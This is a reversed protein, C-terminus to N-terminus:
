CYVRVEGAGKGGGGRRLQRVYAKVPGGAGRKLRFFDKTRVQDSPQVSLEGGRRKKEGGEILAEWPQDPNAMRESPWPRGRFVVGIPTTQKLKEGSITGELGEGGGEGSSIKMLCRRKKQARRWPEVGEKKKTLGKKEEISGGLDGRKGRRKGEGKTQSLNKQQMYKRMISQHKQEEEGKEGGLSSTAWNGAQNRKWCQPRTLGRLISQKLSRRTKEGKLADGFWV